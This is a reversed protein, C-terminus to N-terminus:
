IVIWGRQGAVKLFDLVDARLDADPFARELDVLLAEVDFAGDVRKMIEAASQSLKVMGEPYLLVWSSQAQEFQLRFRPSITPVAHLPIGTEDPM